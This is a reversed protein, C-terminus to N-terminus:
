SFMGPLFYIHGNVLSSDSGLGKLAEKLFYVLKHRLQLFIPNVRLPNLGYRIPIPAM